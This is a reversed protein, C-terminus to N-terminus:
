AVSRRDGACLAWIIAINMALLTLAWLPYHPIWLFNAVANLGALIVGIIRAWVAGNFLACGALFIVIGLILHIWGWGTESYSFLSNRTALFIDDHAIASIGALITMAGAFVLLVAAFTTWGTVAKRGSRSKSKSRSM